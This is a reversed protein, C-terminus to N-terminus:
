QFRNNYSNNCQKDNDSAADPKGLRSAGLLIFFFFVSLFRSLDRETKCLSLM